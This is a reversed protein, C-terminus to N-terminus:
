QAVGEEAPAAAPASGDAPAPAESVPVSGAPGTPTGGATTGETKPALYVSATVDATITPFDSSGFTFGDIKMLRGDVRVSGDALRVFRKMEHFFDALDFFSGTFSFTLPVSDLAPAASVAQGTGPPTTAAAGGAPAPTGEAAAAGENATEVATGSESTAPAGGAAVPPAGEAPAAPAGPAAPAAAPAVARPGVTIKAFRIHTGKAARDLQVLLSPLDVEIPIANGLRVVTAYDRAYDGRTSEADSALSKAADRDGEVQVLQDGLRKAEERKPTLLLFWYAAIAVVPILLMAIKRDRDTLNM